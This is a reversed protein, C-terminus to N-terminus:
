HMTTPGLLIVGDLTVTMPLFITRMRALLQQMNHPVPVGASTLVSFVASLSLLNCRVLPLESSSILPVVLHSPSLVHKGGVPVSRIPQIKVYGLVLWKMFNTLFNM